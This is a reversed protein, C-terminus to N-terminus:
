GRGFAPPQIGSNYARNSRMYVSAVLIVWSLSMTRV